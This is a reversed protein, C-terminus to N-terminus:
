SHVVPIERYCGLTVIRITFSYTPTGVYTVTGSFHAIGGADTTSSASLAGSLKNVPLINLLTYSVPTGTAPAPIVQITINNVLGANNDTYNPNLTLSQPCASLTISSQAHVPLVGAKVVPKLWQAPLFAAATLGGGAALLIKLLQRRSILKQQM